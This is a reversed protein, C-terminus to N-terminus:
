FRSKAVLHMNGQQLGSQNLFVMVTMLRDFLNGSSPNKEPLVYYERCKPGDFYFSDNPGFAFYIDGM